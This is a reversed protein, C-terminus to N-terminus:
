LGPGGRRSMPTGAGGGRRSMPTGAGGGRRSMPTGTRGGRGGRGRGTSAHSGGSGGSVISDDLPVENRVRGFDGMGFSNVSGTGGGLPGPPAGQLSRRPMSPGDGDESDLFSPVDDIGLGSNSGGRASRGGSRGHVSSPTTSGVGRGRGRPRRGPTVGGPSSDLFSPVDDIDLGVGSSGTGGRGHVPLRLDGGGGRPTM